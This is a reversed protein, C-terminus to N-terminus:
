PAAVFNEPPAEVSSRNVGVCFYYGKSGFNITDAYKLSTGLGPARMDTVLSAVKRGASRIVTNFVAPAPVTVTTGTSTPSFAEPLFYIRYSVTSARSQVRQRDYITLLNASAGRSVTFEVPPLASKADTTQRDSADAPIKIDRLGM